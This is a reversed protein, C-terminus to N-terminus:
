QLLVKGTVVDDETRILYHYIGPRLGYTDIYENYNDLTFERVSQGQVSILEMTVTSDFNNLIEFGDTAQTPNPFIFVQSPSVYFVRATDSVIGAGWDTVAALVYKVEGEPIDQDLFSLQNATPEEEIGILTAEEEFIRYAEIRDLNLTSAMFVELDVTASQENLEALAYQFYCQGGQFRYDVAIARHDPYESSGINPKVSFYVGNEATLDIFTATDITTLWPEFTMAGLRHLTYSTAAPDSPWQLLISDGCALGVNPRIKPHIRTIDSTLTDSNAIIRFQIVEPNTPTKFSFFERQLNLDDDLTEWPGDNSKQQLIARAAEPAADWRVFYTEEVLWPDTNTPHTFRVFPETDIWYHLALTQNPGCNSCSISATYTGATPNPITVQELNNLDDAKRIAPQNLQAPTPDLVWPLFLDNEPTTVTLDLNHILAQFDGPNAAPDTWALAVRIERANEPVEISFNIDGNSVMTDLFYNQNDISEWARYANVNGYGSFYDLGPIAIDDATNAFTARLLSAPPLSGENALFTEHLLAAIGSVTAAGDSTGGPSYAVVEPKVRGDYAPGRSARDVFAYTTDSGGVILHNKAQKFNGTLNAFGDLNAFTGISDSAFGQNGSSFVIFLEPLAAITADFSASESSYANNIDLGYSNNQIYSGLSDFYSIPEPFVDLAAETGAVRAAPAVGEGELSSNANGVIITAMDTAHPTNTESERTTPVVRGILDLDDVQFMGEKVQITHGAGRLNPQQDKLFNVRNVSLDLGRVKSEEIIGTRAIDIYTIQPSPLLLQEVQAAGATIVFSNTLTNEKHIPIGWEVLQERLSRGNGGTIVLRQSTTIESLAQKAQPTFKWDLNASGLVIWGPGPKAEAENDLPYAIVLTPSIRRVVKMGQPASSANGTNNLLFPYQIDKKLEGSLYDEIKPSSTSAPQGLTVTTQFVSWIILWGLIGGRFLFRKVVKSLMNTKPNKSSIHEL